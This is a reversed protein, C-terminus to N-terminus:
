WEISSGDWAIFSGNDNHSCNEIISYLKQASFDASFLKDKPVNSQFPKSLETDTTGPHLAIIATKKHTRQYEISLTKIIQNLAAKSARYSYWGGLRNDSISGVRASIAAFINSQRKDFLPLLHKAILPTILTNAQMISLFASTKFDAIRKEPSIPPNTGHLLGCCNIIRTVKEGAIDTALQQLHQEDLPNLLVSTLNPNDQFLAYQKARKVAVLKNRKNLCLKSLAGGIGGSAGFILYSSM